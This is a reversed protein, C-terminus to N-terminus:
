NKYKNFISYSCCSNYLQFQSISILECLMGIASCTTKIGISLVPVKPTSSRRNTLMLIGEDFCGEDQFYAKSSLRWSLAIIIKHVPPLPM